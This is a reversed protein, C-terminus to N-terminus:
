AHESKKSRESLRQIEAELLRVRNELREQYSGGLPELAFALREWFAPSTKQSKSHINSM